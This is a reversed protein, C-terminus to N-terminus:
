FFLIQVIRERHRRNYRFYRELVNTPDVVNNLIDPLEDFIRQEMRFQELVEAHLGDSTNQNVPWCATSLGHQSRSDGPLEVQRHKLDGSWLKDRPNRALRLCFDAVDEFHSRFRLRRADDKDVLDVRDRRPPLRRLLLHLPPNDCLEDCTEISKCVRRMVHKHKACRISDIRDVGPQATCTPEVLLDRKSHWIQTCLLLYQPHDGSLETDRIVQVKCLDRLHSRSIDGRIQDRERLFRCGEGDM